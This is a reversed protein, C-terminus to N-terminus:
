IRQLRDVGIRLFARAFLRAEAFDEVDDYSPGEMTYPYFEGTHRLYHHGVALAVFYDRHYPDRLNRALVLVPRDLRDRIPAFVAALTRSDERFVRLRILDAVRTPNQQAGLSLERALYAIEEPFGAM